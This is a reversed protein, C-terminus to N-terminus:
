TRYYNYNKFTNFIMLKDRLEFLLMKNRRTRRKIFLMADTNCEYKENIRLTKLM